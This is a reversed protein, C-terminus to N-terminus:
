AAAEAHVAGEGEAVPAQGKKPSGVQLWVPSPGACHSCHAHCASDAAGGSPAHLRMRHPPMQQQPM